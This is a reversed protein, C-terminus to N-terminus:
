IRYICELCMGVIATSHKRSGHLKLRNLGGVRLVKPSTLRRRSTPFAISNVLAGRISSNFPHYLCVMLNQTISSFAKVNKKLSLNHNLNHNHPPTCCVELPVQQPTNIGHLEMHMELSDLLQIIIEPVRWQENLDLGKQEHYFWMFYGNPKKSSKVTSGDPLGPPKPPRLQRPEPGTRNTGLSPCPLFSDDDM